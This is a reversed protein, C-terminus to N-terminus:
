YTKGEEKRAAHKEGTVTIINGSHSIEIDKEDAGPLELEIEYAENTAGAEAQPAFFDHIRNGLARFPEVLGPWWEGHGSTALKEVM